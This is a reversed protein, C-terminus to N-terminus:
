LSDDCNTSCVPLSLINKDSLCSLYFMIIDKAESEGFTNGNKSNAGPRRLDVREITKM